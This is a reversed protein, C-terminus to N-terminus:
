FIIWRVVDDIEILHHHLVNSQNKTNNSSSVKSTDGARMFRWKRGDNHSFINVSSDKVLMM